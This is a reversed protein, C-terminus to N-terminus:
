QRLRMWVLSRQADLGPVTLQEVHFVEIPQGIAAIEDRSPKGKMALWRGSPAALHPRTLAIFDTLASFARSVILDFVGGHLAEVRVHQASLNALRLDAGAQRIFAAKKGVKDVCTVTATPIMLALIVGPLGAGSGVDLIRPNVVTAMEREIPRVIALCDALHQVLMAAPDRVATLNYTANWHQLLALFGLLGNFQGASPRLGLTHAIEELQPRLAEVAGSAGTM